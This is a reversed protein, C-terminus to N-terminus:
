LSAGVGGTEAKGKGGGGVVPDIDWKSGTYVVGLVSDTGASEATQISRNVLANTLHQSKHKKRDNRTTEIWEKM